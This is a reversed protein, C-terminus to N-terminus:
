RHHLDPRLRRRAHLLDDIVVADRSSATTVTAASASCGPAGAPACVAAGAFGSAAAGAVGGAAVVGGAVVGGAASVFGAVGDLGTTTGAFRNADASSATCASTAASRAPSVLASTPMM